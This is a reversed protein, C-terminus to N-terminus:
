VTGSYCGTVHPVLLTHGDSYTDFLRKLAAIYAAYQGDAEKPAYSASLNRGIFGQEDFRLPHEFRKARYPGEFFDSFDGKNITDYLGGSFGKFRPCYTQNIVANDRVIPSAEDRSNWVLIVKGGPKLIRRCEQKFRERDFWHFAQAVTVSDVSHSVLTTSEATGNVSVFRDLRGLREEAVARMDANPEVAYVTHGRELLQGTLIGTGSGIDALVADATIGIESFLYEVFEPPYSPRFRAYLRGKGDFKEENM